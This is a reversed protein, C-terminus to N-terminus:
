ARERLKGAHDPCLFIGCARIFDPNAPTIYFLSLRSEFLTTVRLFMSLFPIAAGIMKKTAGKTAGM